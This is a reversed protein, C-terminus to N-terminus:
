EPCKAKMSSRFQAGINRDGDFQKRLGALKEAVVFTTNSGGGETTDFFCQMAPHTRKQSGASHSSMPWGLPVALTPDMTSSTLTGTVATLAHTLSKM